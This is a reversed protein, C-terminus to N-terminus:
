KVLVKEGKDNIGTRMGDYCNQKRENIDKLFDLRCGSELVIGCGSQYVRMECGIFKRAIVTPITIAYTEGSKNGPNIVRLKHHLSIGGRQNFRREDTEFKTVM